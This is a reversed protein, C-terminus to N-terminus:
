HFLSYLTFEMWTAQHGLSFGHACLTLESTVLQQCLLIPRRDLGASKPLGLAALARCTLIRNGHLCAFHRTISGIMDSFVQGKEGLHPSPLPAQSICKKSAIELRARSLAQKPTERYVACSSSRLFKNRDGWAGTRSCVVCKFRAKKKELYKELVHELKVTNKDSSSSSRWEAGRGLLRSGYSKECISACRPLVLGTSIEFDLALEIWTVGLTEDKKPWRLQSVYWMVAEWALQGFRFRHKGSFVPPKKLKPFCAQNKPEHFQYIPMYDVNTLTGKQSTTKSYTLVKLQKARQNRACAIQVYMLAAQAMHKSNNFYKKVVSDPIAHQAAGKVAARDAADNGDKQFQLFLGADVLDQSIHGKTWSIKLPHYRLSLLIQIRKWLDIHEGDM